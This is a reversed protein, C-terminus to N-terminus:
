SPQGSVGLCQCQYCDPCIMRSLHRQYGALTSSDGPDIFKNNWRFEHGCIHLVTIQTGDPNDTIKM